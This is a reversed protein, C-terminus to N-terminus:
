WPRLWEPQVSSTDVPVLVFVILNYALFVINLAGIGALVTLWGGLRGPRWRPPTVTAMSPKADRLFYLAIGPAAWSLSIFVGELLPWQDQQGARLSLAGLVNPYSITQSSLARQEFFFDLLVVAVYGIAALAWPSRVGARRALRMLAAVAFALVSLAGFFFFPEMSLPMSLTGESGNFPLHPIWDGRDLYVSNWAYREDRINAMSEQWITATWAATILLPWTVTRRRLLDYVLYILWLAAIGQMLWNGLVVADRVSDPVGAVDPRSAYDESLAWSVFGWLQYVLVLGGVVALANLLRRHRQVWAPPRALAAAGPEIETNGPSPPHDDQRTNRTQNDVV